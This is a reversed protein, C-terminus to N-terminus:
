QIKKFGIEFASSVEKIDGTDVPIGCLKDRGIYNSDQHRYRRIPRFDKGQRHSRRFTIKHHDWWSTHADLDQQVLPVLIVKVLGVDVPSTTDIESVLPSLTEAWKNTVKNHLEEWFREIRNNEQSTTFSFGRGHEQTTLTQQAACAWENEVGRDAVLRRPAVQIKKWQM